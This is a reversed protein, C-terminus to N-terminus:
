AGTFVRHRMNYISRFFPMYPMKSFITLEQKLSSEESLFQLVDDFHNKMFLNNFANLANEQEHELLYLMMLDYVRFRYTSPPTDPIATNSKLAKVIKSTHKQIRSFVYGSSPKAYGGVTGVNWVFNCYKAPYRRDEMPIAGFEEREVLFDNKELKYSSRLYHKIQNRYLDKGLVQNSFVTYEVLAKNKSFPLLYIFSMGNAQPVDFDMFTPIKPDFIKENCQIEWGLFHQILSIDVKFDEYGPPQLVSQFIQKSEFDGRSTHVNGVEAEYSFGNINAELFTVQTSQKAKNLIYGSFDDSRLCKYRYKNLEELYTKGGIKVLLKNWSHYVLEDDPLELNEWFCWTKDNSPKLFQDILLIQQDRLSPSKLIQWLLSLGAAGAGAIIIDFKKQDAM